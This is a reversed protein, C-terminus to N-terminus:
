YQSNQGAKIVLGRFGRSGRVVSEDFGAGRLAKFIKPASPVHSRSYNIEIYERVFDKLEKRSVRDSEEGRCLVSNDGEVGGNLLHEVVHGLPDHEDRMENFVSAGSQGQTYKGGSAILRRIGGVAFALIGEPSSEFCTQAFNRTSTQDKESNYAGLKLFSMRRQLPATGGRVTPVENGAWLHIPPLTTTVADRFKRDIQIPAQDEIQKLIGKAIPIDEEIDTVINALKGLSGALAFNKRFDCPDLSTINDAHLLRSALLLLTSKGCGPEGYLFFVRPQLPLVCAGFMEQIIHRKEERDGESEGSLMRDLMADFEHNHTCEDYNIPIVYTCYDRRSHERFQLDFTGAGRVAHLTGNLFNAKFRDRSYMNIQVPPQPLLKIVARATREAVRPSFWTAPRNSLLEWILRYIWQEAIRADIMRWHTGRWEFLDGEVTAICHPRLLRHFEAILHGESPKVTNGDSNTPWNFQQILTVNEPLYGADPRPNPKNEPSGGAAGGPNDACETPQGTPTTHDPERQVPEPTRGQSSGHRQGDPQEHPPEPRESHRATRLKRPRQLQGRTVELGEAIHLDNFDTGKGKSTFEPYVLNAGVARAAKSGKQLGVNYKIEKGNRTITTFRDNDACLYIDAAHKDSRICEAVPILNGSDLAVVVAVNQKHGPERVVDTSGNQNGSHLALWISAGTAYGECIYISTAREISGFVYHAGEKNMGKLLKKTGDPQIFQLGVLAGHRTLPIVLNGRYVRLGQGNDIGKAKLYEHELLESSKDWLYQARAAAQAHKEAADTAKEAKRREREARIKKKEEPDLTEMQDFTHREGTRWDGITIYYCGNIEEGTYWGADGSGGEPDFRHIEGDLIADEIGYQALFEAPTM